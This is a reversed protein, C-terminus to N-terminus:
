KFCNHLCTFKSALEYSSLSVQPLQSKQAKGGTTSTAMATVTLLRALADYLLHSLGDSLTKTQAHCFICRSIYALQKHLRYSCHM